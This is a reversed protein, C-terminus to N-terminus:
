KLSFLFKFFGPVHLESALSENESFYRAIDLLLQDRVNRPNEESYISHWYPKAKRIALLAKVYSEYTRQPDSNLESQRLQICCDEFSINDFQLCHSIRHFISSFHSRLDEDRDLDNLMDIYISELRLPTGKYLAKVPSNDFVDQLSPLLFYAEKHILGTVWIRHNPVKGLDLNGGAYLEKYLEETNQFNSCASLSQSQIDLDIIGFLKEPNLNALIKTM